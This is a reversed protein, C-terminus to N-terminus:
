SGGGTEPPPDEVGETLPILVPWSTGSVTVSGDGVSAITYTGSYNYTAYVAPSGGAGFEDPPVAATVLVLYDLM